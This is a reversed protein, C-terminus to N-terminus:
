APPPVPAPAPAALPGPAPLPAPAALPAPAGPAAAPAGPVPAPGVPAMPAPGGGTATLPRQTLALLADSGSIEQTRIAETPADGLTPASPVGLSKLNVTLYKPSFSPKM